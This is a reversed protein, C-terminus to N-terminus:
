PQGGAAKSGGISQSANPQFDVDTAPPDSAALHEVPASPSDPSAAPPEIREPM